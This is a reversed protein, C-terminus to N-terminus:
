LVVCHCKKVDLENCNTRSGIMSGVSCSRPEDVPRSMSADSDAATVANFGSSVLGGAQPPHRRAGGHERFSTILSVSASCSSTFSKCSACRRVHAQHQIIIEIKSKYKPSYNRTKVTNTFCAPVAGPCDPGAGCWARRRSLLSHRGLAGM